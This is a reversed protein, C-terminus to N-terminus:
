PEAIFELKFGKEDVTDMFWEIISLIFLRFFIVPINIPAFFLVDGFSDILNPEKRFFSYIM